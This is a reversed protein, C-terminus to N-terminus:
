PLIYIIMDRMKIFHSTYKLEKTFSDVISIDDGIHYVTVFESSITEKIDNERITIHLIGKTTTSKSWFTCATNNNYTKIPQDIYLYMHDVTM